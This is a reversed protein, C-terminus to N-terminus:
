PMDPRFAYVVTLKENTARYFHNHGYYLHRYEVNKQIYEGLEFLPRSLSPSSPDTEYKHLLVYDVKNNASKLNKYALAIEDESAEEDPYWLGMQAWKAGSKCGGFTFFTKNEITYINGRMLHVINSTLRHVRGGCWEEEPFSKLYPFNEHNGDIFAINKKISLFFETFELYDDREAFNLGVDGLIILLDGDNAIKLYETLGRFNSDGHLDSTLYIM